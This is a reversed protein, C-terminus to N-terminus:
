LRDDVEVPYPTHLDGFDIGPSRRLLGTKLGAVHDVRDVAIEGCLAAIQRPDDGVRRGVVDELHVHAGDAIPSLMGDIGEDGAPELGIAPTRLPRGETPRGLRATRRSARTPRTPDGEMAPVQNALGVVPKAM